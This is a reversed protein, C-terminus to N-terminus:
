DANLNLGCAKDPTKTRNVKVRFVHVGEWM